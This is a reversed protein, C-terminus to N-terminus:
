YKHRLRNNQIRNLLIIKRAYKEKLKEQEEELLEIQFRQIGKLYVYLVSLLIVMYLIYSFWNFYLQFGTELYIPLLAIIEILVMGLITWYKKKSKTSM